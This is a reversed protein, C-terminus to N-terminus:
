VEFFFIFFMARDFSFLYSFCPMFFQISFRSCFLRSNAFQWSRLFHLSVSLEIGRILSEFRSCTSSLAYMSHSPPNKSSSRRRLQMEVCPQRYSFKFRRPIKGKIFELRKQMTAMDTVSPSLFPMPNPLLPHIIVFLPILM